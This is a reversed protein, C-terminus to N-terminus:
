SFLSIVLIIFIAANGSFLYKQVCRQFRFDSNKNVSKELLFVRQFPHFFVDWFTFIWKRDDIRVLFNFRGLKFDALHQLVLYSDEEKNQPTWLKLWCDCEVSLFRLRSFWFNCQWSLFFHSFNHRIASTNPKSKSNVVGITDTQLTLLSNFAYNNTLM